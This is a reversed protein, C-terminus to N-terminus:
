IKHTVVHGSALKDFGVVVSGLTVSAAMVSFLFFVTYLSRNLGLCNYTM